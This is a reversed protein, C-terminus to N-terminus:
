LELRIHCTCEQLRSSTTVASLLRRPRGGYRHITNTADYECLGVHYGPKNACQKHPTKNVCALTTATALATALAVPTYGDHVTCLGALTSSTTRSAARACTVVTCLFSWHVFASYQCLSGSHLMYWVTFNAMVCAVLRTRRHLPNRASKILRRQPALSDVMSLGFLSVINKSRVATGHSGYGAITRLILRVHGLVCVRTNPICSTHM